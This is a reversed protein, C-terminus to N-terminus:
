EIPALDEQFKFLETSAQREKIGVPLITIKWDPSKLRNHNAVFSLQELLM